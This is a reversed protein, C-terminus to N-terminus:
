SAAARGTDIRSRSASNISRVAHLLAFCGLINLPRDDREQHRRKRALRVPKRGTARNRPGVPKRAKKENSMVLM